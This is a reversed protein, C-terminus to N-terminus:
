YKWEKESVVGHGKCLPCSINPENIFEILEKCYNDINSKLDEQTKGRFGKIINYDQYEKPAMNFCENLFRFDKKNTTFKIPATLFVKKKVRFCFPYDSTISVVDYNIHQKIYQRVINFSQEPSLSCPRSPLLISPFIIEDILQHQIANEKLKKLGQHAWATKQVDYAFGGCEKIEKVETITEYNFDVNELINPQKDSVAKYLSRYPEYKNKWVWEGNIYELAEERKLISKIKSSKTTSDFLEFRQNIDPQGIYKQVLRPKKDIIGWDPHFTKKVPLGNIVLGDPFSYRSSYNSQFKSIYFKNKCKIGIFNIM